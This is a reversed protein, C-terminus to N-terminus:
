LLCLTTNFKLLIWELLVDSAYFLNLTITFLAEDISDTEYLRLNHSAIGSNMFAETYIEGNQHTYHQTFGMTSAAWVDTKVPWVDDKEFCM